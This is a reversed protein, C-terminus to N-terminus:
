VFINSKVAFVNKDYLTPILTTRELNTYKIAFQYDSGFDSGFGILSISAINFDANFNSM